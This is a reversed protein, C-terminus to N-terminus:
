DKKHLHQSKIRGLHKRSIALYSALHQQPIIYLFKGLKKIVMEHRDSAPQLQLLQIQELLKQLSLEQLYFLIYVADARQETLQKLQDYRASLLISPLLASIYTDKTLGYNMTGIFENPLYFHQTQIKSPQYHNESQSQASNLEQYQHLLGQFLFHISRDTSVPTILLRGKELKIRQFLQSFQVKTEESCDSLSSLNEILAEREM